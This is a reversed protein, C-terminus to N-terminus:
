EEADNAVDFRQVFKNIKEVLGARDDLELEKELTEKKAAESFARLMASKDEEDFSESTLMYVIIKGLGSEGVIDNRFQHAMAAMDFLLRGVEAAKNEEEDDDLKKILYKKILPESCFLLFGARNERNWPRPDDRDASLTFLADVVDPMMTATWEPSAAMLSCFAQTLPFFLAKGEDFDGAVDDVFVNWDAHNYVENLIEVVACPGVYADEFHAMNDECKPGFAMFLLMAQKRACEADDDAILRRMLLKLWVARKRFCASIQHWTSTRFVLRMRMEVAVDFADRNPELFFKEAQQSLEFKRELHQIVRPLEVDDWGRTFTGLMSAFYMSSSAVKWDRSQAAAPDLASAVDVAKAFAGFASQLRTTTGLLMGVRKHLVAFSRLLGFRNGEATVADIQDEFSKACIDGWAVEDEDNLFRFRGLAANSTSWRAVVANFFKCVLGLNGVSAFDLRALIMEVIEVPLRLLPSTSPFPSSSSSLRPRKPSPPPIEGLRRKKM